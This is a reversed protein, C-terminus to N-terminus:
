ILLNKKIVRLVVNRKSHYQVCLVYTCVFLTCVFKHVCLVYTCVFLTCVFKHVCLVYVCVYLCHVYLSIYM